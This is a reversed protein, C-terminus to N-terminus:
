RLRVLELFTNSEAGSIDVTNDGSYSTATLKVYDDADLWLMGAVDVDIQTSSGNGSDKYVHHSGNSVYIGAQYRKDAVCNIFSVQGQVLYLGAVGPTIKDTDVDEIGDTFGTTIADFLVYTEVTDVLNEQLDTKHLRGAPVGIGLTTQVAVLNADDLITRAFATLDALGATGSGTFYALKNAASTLGALAALESDYAQVDTGIVLGLNIRAAAASVELLLTKAWATATVDPVNAIAAIDGNALFGLIMSARATVGPIEYVTDSPDSPPGKISRLLINSLQQIQYEGHDFTQELAVNNLGGAAFQSPQTYPVIREITITYGEPWAYADYVVGNLKTTSVTGGNEYNNNPASVSYSYTGSEEDLVTPTSTADEWLTVVLVSTDTGIISFPFDFDTVIDDCAYSKVNETTSVSM